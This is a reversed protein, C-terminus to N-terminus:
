MGVVSLWSLGFILGIYFVGFRIAWVVPRDSRGLIQRPWYVLMAYAIAVAVTIAAAAMLLAPLADPAWRGVVDWLGKAFRASGSLPALLGYLIGGTALLYPTLLARRIAAPLVFLSGPQTSPRIPLGALAAPPLVMWGAAAIAPLLGILVPLGLAASAGAGVVLMGAVILPAVGASLGRPTDPQDPNRSALCVAAGVAGALWLLGDIPRSPAFMGAGEARVIAPSALAVWAALIWDELMLPMGIKVTALRDSTEASM